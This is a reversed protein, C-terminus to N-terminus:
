VSGIRRWLGNEYSNASAWSHLFLQEKKFDIANKYLFCSEYRFYSNLCSVLCRIRALSHDNNSLMLINTCFQKKRNSILIKVRQFLPTPSLNESKKKVCLPMQEM